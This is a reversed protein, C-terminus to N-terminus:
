QRLSPKCIRCMHRVRKGQQGACVYAEDFSRFVRWRGDATEARKPAHWCRSTHVTARRVRWGARTNVWYTM